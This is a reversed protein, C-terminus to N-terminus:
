LFFTVDVDLSGNHVKYGMLRYLLKTGDISTINFIAIISFLFTLKDFLVNLATIDKSRDLLQFHNPNFKFEQYNGFHCNELINETILQPDVFATFESKKAFCINNTSIVDYDEFLEFYIGKSDELEDAFIRLLNSLPLAGLFISFRELCYVSITHNLNIKSIHLTLVICEQEIYEIQCKIKSVFDDIQSLDYLVIPLNDGIQIRFEFKDRISITQLCNFLQDKNPSTLSIIRSHFIFDKISEDVTVSNRDLNFVTEFNLIM